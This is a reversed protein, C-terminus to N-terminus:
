RSRALHDARERERNGQVRGLLGAVLWERETRARPLSRVFNRTQEALTNQGQSRLVESTALWGRELKLLASESLQRKAALSRLRDKTASSVRAAIFQDASMASM